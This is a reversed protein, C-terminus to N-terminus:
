LGDKYKGATLSLKLKSPVPPWGNSMNAIKVSVDMERSCSPSVPHTAQLVPVSPAGAVQVYTGRPNFPHLDSLYSLHLAAPTNDASRM